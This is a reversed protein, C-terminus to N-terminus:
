ASCATAPNAPNGNLDLVSAFNWNIDLSILARAEAETGLNKRFLCVARIHQRRLREATAADLTKGPI